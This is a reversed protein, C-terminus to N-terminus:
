LRLSTGTLALVTELMRAADCVNALEGAVANPDVWEGSDHETLYDQLRMAHFSVLNVLELPHPFAGEEDLIVAYRKEHDVVSPLVLSALQATVRLTTAATVADCEGSYIRARILREQRLVSDVLAADESSLVGADHPRADLIGAEDTSAELCDLCLNIGRRDAIVLTIHLPDKASSTYLIM